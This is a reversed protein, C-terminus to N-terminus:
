RVGYRLVSRVLQRDTPTAFALCVLLVTFTVARELSM